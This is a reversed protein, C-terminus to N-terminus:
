MNIKRLEKYKYFLKKHEESFVTAKILKNHNDRGSEFSSNDDSMIYYWDHKNLAEEYKIIDKLDEFKNTELKM